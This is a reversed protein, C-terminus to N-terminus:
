SWRMQGEYARGAEAVAQDLPYEELLFQEILHPICEADTQSTFEHGRDILERKLEVYNEVIGNHVVMVESHCDMHPHANFDTPGGHTAWRTHGIGIDGAPLGDELSARLKSLKGSVRHVAAEGDPGIVAIGASDYGRYELSALGELIIPAAQRRGTYGIIGCM